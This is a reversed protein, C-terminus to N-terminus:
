IGTTVAGNAVATIMIVVSAAVVAVAVRIVKDISGRAITRPAAVRQHAVLIGTLHHIFDGFPRMGVFKRGFHQRWGHSRTVITGGRGCRSSAVAALRSRASAVFSEPGVQKATSSSLRVVVLWCWCGACRVRVNGPAVNAGQDFGALRGDLNFGLDKKGILAGKQRPHVQADRQGSGANGNQGKGLVLVGKRLQVPDQQKGHGNGKDNVAHILVGTARGHNSKTM